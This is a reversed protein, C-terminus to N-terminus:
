KEIIFDINSIYKSVKKLFFPRTKIKINSITPENLLIKEAKEIDLWSITQKLRKIYNDNKNLFNYETNYEVEVSAKVEFPNEKRYLVWMKPFISISDKDISIIKEKEPLIKQEIKNKLKAIISDKNFTYTTIDISWSIYFNDKKIEKKIEPTNIVLNDFKYINDIELIQYNINSNKNIEEVKDQIKKIAKKKINEKFIKKAKEIDEKTITKSFIDKWNKIKTITKAFINKRDEKKLWPLILFINKDINWRSWIFQWNIDKTKAIIETEKTWPIITNNKNKKAAPINIWRTTEYLLWNQTLLRTHAKLKIPYEYKNIFVIEWRAKNRDKQEIKTAKFNSKLNIKQTVKKLEIINDIKKDNNEKFIFNKVIKKVEIDPTIYVYTKNVAFFFVYSFIFISILLLSFFLPYNIKQKYYKLFKKRPDIEKQKLNLFSFINFFTKKIEYKLYEFFNYNYKIIDKKINKNNFKIWAKKIIKKALIDNSNIIIKNEPFAEKISKLAIKNYLIDHWFPFNLIIKKQNKKEKKIKEIINIINDEKKIKIM